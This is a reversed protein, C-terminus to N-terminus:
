WVLWQNRGPGKIGVRIGAAPIIPIFLIFVLIGRVVFLLDRHLIGSHIPVKYICWSGENWVGPAERVKTLKVLKEGHYPM